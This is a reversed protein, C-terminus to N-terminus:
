DVPDLAFEASVLRFPCYTRRGSGPPNRQERMRRNPWLSIVKNHRTYLMGEGSHRYRVLEWAGDGICLGGHLRM